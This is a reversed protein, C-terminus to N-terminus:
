FLLIQNGTSTINIINVYQAWATPTNVLTDILTGNFYIQLQNMAYSPRAAYYFSLIYLGIQSINIPQQLSSTYQISVYQNTFNTEDPYYFATRGNQM